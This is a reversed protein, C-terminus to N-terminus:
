GRFALTRNYTEKAERYCGCAATELGERDLIRIEGRRYGFGPSHARDRIMLLLRPLRAELLHFRNCAATQAVQTM